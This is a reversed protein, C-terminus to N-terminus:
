LTECVKSFGEAARDVGVNEFPNKGAFIIPLVMTTLRFCFNRDNLIGTM